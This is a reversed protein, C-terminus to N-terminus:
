CGLKSSKYVYDENLNSEFPALTRTWLMPLEDTIRGRLLQQCSHTHGDILEPMVLKHKGDLTDTALFKDIIKNSDAIKIIETNNIVISQNEKIKFELGKNKLEQFMASKGPETFFIVGLDSRGLEVNRLVSLTKCELFGVRYASEELTSLFQNFAKISGVHHQSSVCFFQGKRSKLYKEEIYQSQHIIKELDVILEEGERTLSIGKGIRNFITVNYELEINSIANSISSQYLYLSNAAKSISKLKAVELIYKIHQTNM